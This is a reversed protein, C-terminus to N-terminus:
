DTQRDQFLRVMRSDVEQVIEKRESGQFEWLYNREGQNYAM